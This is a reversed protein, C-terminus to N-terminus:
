MADVPEESRRGEGGGEIELATNSAGITREEAKTDPNFALVANRNDERRGSVRLVDAFPGM